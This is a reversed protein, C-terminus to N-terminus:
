NGEVIECYREYVIAQDGKFTQDTELVAEKVADLMNKNSETEEIIFNENMLVDYERAYANLDKIDFVQNKGDESTILKPEGNEDLNSYQKILQMRGEEVEELHKVTLKVFKTRARSKQASLEQEMLFGVFSNIEYNRMKM